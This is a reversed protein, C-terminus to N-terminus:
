ETIEEKSDDDLKIGKLWRDAFSRGEQVIRMLHRPEAFGHDAGDIIVLKNHNSGIKDLNEHLLIAQRVPVVPDLSGHITLVPPDDVDIYHVPSAQTMVHATRDSTGLFDALADEFGAGTDAILTAEAEPDAHWLRLDTPGAVNIIAQVTSSFEAHGGDGEFGDEPNMLGLLLCLNGGASHGSVGIKEPDIGFTKANARLFRVACKVDEIQAPWPSKPALRYEVSAAVYGFSAFQRIVAEFDSKYGSQWAGGHIFVLAPVPATESDPRAMDLKLETGGANGYVIDKTLTVSGQAHGFAATGLLVIAIWFEPYKSNM